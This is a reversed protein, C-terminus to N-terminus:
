ALLLQPQALGDVFARWEDRRAIANVISHGVMAAPREKCLLAFVAANLADLLYICERFLARTVDPAWHSLYNLALERERAAHIKLEPLRFRRACDESNHAQQVENLACALQWRARASDIEPVDIWMAFEVPFDFRPTWGSPVHLHRNELWPFERELSHRLAPSLGARFRVGADLVARVSALFGHANVAAPLLGARDYGQQLAPTLTSRQAACARKWVDCLHAWDRSRYADYAADIEHEPAPRFFPLARLRPLLHAEFDASGDLQL